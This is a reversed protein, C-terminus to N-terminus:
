KPNQYRETQITITFWLPEWEDNNRCGFKGSIEQLEEITSLYGWRDGWYSIM